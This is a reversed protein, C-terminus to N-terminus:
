LGLRKTIFWMLIDSTSNQIDLGKGYNTPKPKDSLDSGARVQEVSEPHLIGVWTPHGTRGEREVRVIVYGQEPSLYHGNQTRRSNISM